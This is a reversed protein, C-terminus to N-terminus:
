HKMLKDIVFFFLWVASVATMFAGISTVAASMLQGGVPILAAGTSFATFGIVGIGIIALLFSQEEKKNINSLGVIVAAPVLLIAITPNATVASILALLVGIVFAWAGVSSKPGFIDFPM